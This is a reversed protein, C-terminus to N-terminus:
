RDAPTTVHLGELAPTVPIQCALRSMPGEALSGELMVAEDEGPPGVIAFWEPAVFIACTACICSGGCDGMIGPIGQNRAAVMLSEGVRAEVVHETGLKDTFHVTPM